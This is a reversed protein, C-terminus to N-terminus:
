LTLTRYLQPLRKPLSAVDALVEYGMDQCMTKLYDHGTRDVTLAFPTIHKRRAETFAMKTDHVAYEKEVGERSYGRDQPRGDSLLFMFKSKADVAELKSTTHRIAPGMRTAHMPTVKDLRAKVHNTLSEKFEKILYFEVNERGYGSFGYIAYRDGLIELAKMLLVISEKEVDIIRKNARRAGEEKHQRLWQMYDHPDNRYDWKEAQRGDEIAEATSASMDLLLAVAVDREIKNRRWYVKDDPTSGARREVIAEIVADFDYEDGDPLRKVKKFQEPQSMEFQHKIQAVLTSYGTLTKDYFDPSGEELPREKVICWRPKYDVARFDWEDYLYQKPKSVTLPKDSNPDKDSQGSGAQPDQDDQSAAEQMLKEIMEETLEMMDQESGEMQEIETSDKLMEKLAEEDFEPKGDEEESDEENQKRMENLAQVLEPKFEGRYEVKQPSKYETEKPNAGEQDLKEMLAKLEEASPMGESDSVETDSQDQNGEQPTNKVKAIIEYILVTAQATDEVNAGEVQVSRAIDVISRVLTQKQSPVRVIGGQQLSVRVLVEVLAEQGPLSEFPPREALATKQIKSYTQRIGAYERKFQADIRGDEVLMFIDSVLRKNPFISFFRQIDSLAQTKRGATVRTLDQWLYEKFLFPQKGFSFQFSGYELHAVQHTSLIKYWGFNELKSPYKKASPPLFIATGETSASEISTWGIGKETLTESNKIQMHSGALAQCYMSLVERIKDLELTSSIDEMIDIAHKSELKFYAMGGDPNEALIQLGGNVWTQMQDMKIKVLVKPASHLFELAAMPSKKLVSETITIFNFHDHPAIEDLAKSADVIFTLPSCNDAGATAEALALFVKRHEKRIRNIIKPGLDLYTRVDRWNNDIMVAALQLFPQRDPKELSSFVQDVMKLCESGQDYSHVSLADLLLAFRAIEDLNLYKALKPTTDYFAAALSTSKWTGKYLSKGITAWESLDKSALFELTQASARFYAGALVASEEALDKGPAVWLRIDTPPLKKMVNPTSRFYDSAAEWSRLSHKAIDLGDQAWKFFTADDLADMQQGARRFEDSLMPSIKELDVEITRLKENWARM